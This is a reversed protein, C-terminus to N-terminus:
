RATAEITVVSTLAKVLHRVDREVRSKVKIGALTKGEDIAASVTAYDNAITYDIKRRLAAEPGSVDPRGFMPAPVRNMLVRLREGLGNAEILDIQRRAQHVGPVSLETVLCIADSRQFATLTWGVWASPLDVLVIDYSEVALDLLKEVFEPTVIDLPMIDPPSAIISMGSVHSAAVSQLIEPDLREGADILDVLCLQPKLNVYLAANGFQVDLDILCVRKGDAWLMGAQAIIATTGVGGLAGFFSIIRGGRSQGVPRDRVIAERGTEIAQYLEDQSFPIALVDVAESRLVRRTTAVTLDRVAAVVPLKGVNDRVFREFVEFERPSDPDIQCILVDTARLLPGDAMFSALNGGHVKLAIDPMSLQTADLLQATETDLVICVQLAGRSPVIAEVTPEPATRGLM